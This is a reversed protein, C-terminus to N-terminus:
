PLSHFSKSNMFIAITIIQPQTADDYNVEMSHQLQLRRRKNPDTLPVAMADSCKTKGIGSSPHCTQKLTTAHSMPLCCRHKAPM